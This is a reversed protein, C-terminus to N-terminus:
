GPLSFCSFMTTFIVFVISLIILLSFSPSFLILSLSGSHCRPPLFINASEATIPHFVLFPMNPAPSQTHLYGMILVCSSYNLFVLSTAFIMFPLSHNSFSPLFPQWRFERHTHTNCTCMYTSAHAYTHAHACTHLHMYTYFGFDSTM